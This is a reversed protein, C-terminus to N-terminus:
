LSPRSAVFFKYNWSRLRRRLRCALSRCELTSRYYRRIHDFGAARLAAMWTASTMFHSYREEPTSTSMNYLEGWEQELTAFGLAKGLYLSLMGRLLVKLHFPSLMSHASFIFRAGPKLVHLVQRLVELKARYGPMHDMENYSFLAGDFSEGAFALAKADMQSYHVKQGGEVAYDRAAKVMSLILDLGVVHFGMGAMPISTRGAGCGLDLIRGGSPFFRQILVEESRWLGRASVYRAVTEPSEYAERVTDKALEHQVLSPV